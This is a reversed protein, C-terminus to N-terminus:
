VAAHEPIAARASPESQEHAKAAVLAAEESSFLRDLDLIIVFGDGHRGIGRIYDSRWRIGIDPPPEIQREGLAAVEFM